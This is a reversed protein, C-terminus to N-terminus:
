ISILENNDSILFENIDTVLFTDPVKNPSFPTFYIEADVFEIKLSVSEPITQRLAHSYNASSVLCEREYTQDVLWAQTSSLLDGIFLLDAHSKYGTEVDIINTSPVRLRSKRFDQVEPDFVNFTDDNKFEPTRSAKGSVELYEYVDFSNKFKLLYSEEFLPDSIIIKFIRIEDICFFLESVVGSASFSDLLLPLNVMCPIGIANTGLIFRNKKDTEVSIAGATPTIFFVPSLENRNLRIYDTDTRTTFLFQSFPNLFRFTFANTTQKLLYKQFEKSIGGIVVKGTFSYDAILVSYEAMFSALNVQSVLTADYQLKVHTKLFDSIDFSFKWVNDSIKAPFASLYFYEGSVLVSISVLTNFDTQFEFVVPNSAFSYPAPTKLATIM